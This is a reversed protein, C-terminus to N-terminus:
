ITHMSIHKDLMLVNECKIYTLFGLKELDLVNKQREEERKLVCFVVAGM